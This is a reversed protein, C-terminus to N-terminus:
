CFIPKEASANRIGGSQNAWCHGHTEAHLVPQCLRQKLNRILDNRTRVPALFRTAFRGVEDLSHADSGGCETLDYSRRWTDVALNELPTNRGNISEIVGCLGDHILREDVPRQARFPHAAVAIGGQQAVAHLLLDAPLRSPLTEFPGFLLFDGQSTTYEMGVIVCLGNEQIGESVSHRVDMTHHDTICIGDLGREKACVIAEQLDL